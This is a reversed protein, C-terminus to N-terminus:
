NLGALASVKAAIAGCLTVHGAVSLHLDAVWFMPEKAARLAPGFDFTPIGLKEVGALFRRGIAAHEDLAGEDLGLARAAPEIRDRLTNGAVEIPSPLYAMLLVIHHDDCVRKMRGVMDLSISISWDIEEPHDHFWIASTLGQFMAPPSLSGGKTRKASQAATLPPIAKKAFYRAPLLTEVFDNGGHVVVIFLKPELHAYKEIAGLYNQFTYGCDAANVVDIRRGNGRENLLKELLNPLSEANNCFGDVHSDGTIMIRCDVSPALEGDERLGLSNTRYSWHGAPHEPWRTDIALNPKQVFYSVPDFTQVRTSGPLLAYVDDKPIYLEPDNPRFRAAEEPVIATGQGRSRLM